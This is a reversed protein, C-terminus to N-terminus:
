PLTVTEKEEQGGGKERGIGDGVGGGGGGGGFFNVSGIVISRTMTVHVRTNTM